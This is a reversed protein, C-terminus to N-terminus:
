NLPFGSIFPKKEKEYFRDRISLWITVIRKFSIIIGCSFTQIKSFIRHKITKFDKSWSFCYSFTRYWQYHYIEPIKWLPIKFDM